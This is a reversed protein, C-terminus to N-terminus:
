GTCARYQPKAELLGRQILNLLLVHTFKLFCLALAFVSLSESEAFAFGEDSGLLFGFYAHLEKQQLFVM